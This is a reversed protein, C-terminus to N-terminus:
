FSGWRYFYRGALAGGVGSALVAAVTPIVLLNLLLGLLSVESFFVAAASGDGSECQCSGFLAEVSTNGFFGSGFGSSDMGAGFGSWFVASIWQLVPLRSM